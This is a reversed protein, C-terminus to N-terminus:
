QWLDEWMRKVTDRFTMHLGIAQEKGQEAIKDAKHTNNILYEIISDLERETRYWWMHKQNIFYDDLGETYPLILCGGALLVNALRNSQYTNFPTFEPCEYKRCLAENIKNGKICRQGTCYCCLPGAPDGLSILSNAVIQPYEEFTVSSHHTMKENWGNGFVQLMVGYKDKIRQLAERRHKNYNNGIFTMVYQRGWRKTDVYFNPAPHFYFKYKDLDGIITSTMFSYDTVWIRNVKDEMYRFFEHFNYGDGNMLLAKVNSFENHITDIWDYQKKISCGYIIVTPNFEQIAEIDVERIDQKLVEGYQEFENNWYTNTNGSETSFKNIHLLRM